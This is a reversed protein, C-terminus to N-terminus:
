IPPLYKQPSTDIGCHLGAHHTCTQAPRLQRFIPDVNVGQGRSTEGVEPTTGSKVGRQHFYLRRAGVWVLVSHIRRRPPADCSRLSDLTLTATMHAICPM